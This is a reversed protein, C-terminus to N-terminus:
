SCHIREGPDLDWSGCWCDKGVNTEPLFFEAATNVPDAHSCQCGKEQFVAGWWGVGRCCTPSQRGTRTSAPTALQLQLVARIASIQHVKATGKVTKAYPGLDARTLPPWVLPQGMSTCVHKVKSVWSTCPCGVQAVSVCWGADPFRGGDCNVPM